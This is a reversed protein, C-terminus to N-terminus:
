PEEEYERYLDFWHADETYAYDPLPDPFESRDYAERGIASRLRQLLIRRGCPPCWGSWGADTITEWVWKRWRVEEALGDQIEQEAPGLFPRRRELWKEYDSARRYNDFALTQPPLRFRDIIPPCDPKMERQRDRMITNSTDLQYQAGFYRPIEDEEMVGAAVWEAAWVPLQQQRDASLFVEATQEASTLVASLAVAIIASEIM